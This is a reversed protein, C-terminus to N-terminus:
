LCTLRLVVVAGSGVIEVESGLKRHSPGRRAVVKGQAFFDVAQTTKVEASIACDLGKPNVSARVTKAASHTCQRRVLCSDGAVPMERVTKRVHCPRIEIAPDQSRLIRPLLFGFRQLSTEHGRSSCLQSSQQSHLM